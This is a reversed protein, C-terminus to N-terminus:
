HLIQLWHHGLNNPDQPNTRLRMFVQGICTVPNVPGFDRSDNGRLSRNDGLLYLGRTVKEPRIHLVDDKRIFFQHDTNGLHEIGYIMTSTRDLVADYFRFNETRIDQDVTTGAITLQGRPSSVLMGPKGVVRGMVYEGPRAPHECVVIDGMDPTSHRWILAEEGALLTPAMGNHTIEVPKVFFFFLIGIAVLGLGLVWGILNFLFRFLTRM